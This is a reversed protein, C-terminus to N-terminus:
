AWRDPPPPGAMLNVSVLLRALLRELVNVSMSNGIMQALQRDTIHDRKVDPPFGQLRLMESVQLLRQKKTIWHGGSGARTRTLCPCCGLKASVRKSSAFVDVCWPEREPDAGKKKLFRCHKKLAHKAHKPLAAIRDAGGQVPDLCKALHCSRSSPPPWRFPFKANLAASWMGVVYVRTRTHPLGHAATNMMQWQVVYHGSGGSGRIARLGSLMKDFVPKFKKNTLGMVNELLFTTPQKKQLYKLIHPFIKGRPDKCGRRKGAISFSQCPFGAVYLDCQPTDAVSRTLLDDYLIEPVTKQQMIFRQCVPDNDCCFVLKCKKGWGLNDLAMIVPEMGSCDTGVRVLKKVTSPTPTTAAGKRQVMTSVPSTQNITRKCSLKRLLKTEQALVTSDWGDDGFSM